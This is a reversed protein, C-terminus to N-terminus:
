HLWVMFCACVCAIHTGALTHLVLNSSYISIGTSSGSDTWPTILETPITTLGALFLLVPWHTVRLSEEDELDENESDEDESEEGESGEDESEEDEERHLGELYQQIPFLQSGTTTTTRNATPSSAPVLNASVDSPLDTVDICSGRVAPDLHQSCLGERREALNHLETM